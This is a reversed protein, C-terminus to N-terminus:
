AWPQNGNASENVGYMRLNSWHVIHEIISDVRWICIFIDLVAGQERLVSSLCLLYLVVPTSFRLSDIVISSLKAVLRTLYMMLTLRAILSDESNPLFFVPPRSGLCVHDQQCGFDKDNEQWTHSGRNESWFQVQNPMDSETESRADAMSEAMSRNDVMIMKAADQYMEWTPVLVRKAKGVPLRFISGMEIM